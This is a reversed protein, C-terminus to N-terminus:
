VGSGTGPADLIRSRWWAVSESLGGDLTVAPRWGVEDRIRTVNATLRPPDHPPTPRAGLRILSEAQLVEGIRRVVGAVTVPSGSAINVAGEVDSALIAAFADAVDQVHLFDRVQTGASCQAERGALLALIVSPVLRDPHESPGYLHFVRGWSASLRGRAFGELVAHFAHKASGYLTGPRLPTTREDCDGAVVAYEACSGAGVFREGGQDAFARLLEISVQVWSLNQPSTWFEGPTACWALHLLHTPRVTEILRAAAGPVLLDAQHWEAVGAAAPQARSSVAHVEFPLAGLPRLCHRGIFGSAGTLLVRTM